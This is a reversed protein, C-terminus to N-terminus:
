DKQVRNTEYEHLYTCHEHPSILSHTIMKVMMTLNDNYEYGGGGDNNNDGDTLITETM